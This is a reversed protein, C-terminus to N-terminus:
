ESTVIERLWQFRAKESRVFELWIEIDSTELVMNLTIRVISIAPEESVKTGM